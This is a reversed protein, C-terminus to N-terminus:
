SEVTAAAAEQMFNKREIFCFSNCNSNGNYEFM